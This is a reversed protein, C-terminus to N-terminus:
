KIRMIEKYVRESEVRYDPNEPNYYIIVTEGPETGQLANDDLRYTYENGENDTFKVTSVLRAPGRRGRVYEQELITAEAKEYKAMQERYGANNDPIMAIIDDKFILFAISAAFCLVIIVAQAPNLKRRPNM